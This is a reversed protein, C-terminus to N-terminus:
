TARLQDIGVIHRNVHGRERHFVDMYMARQSRYGMAHHWADSSALTPLYEIIVGPVEKVIQHHYHGCYFRRHKCASWDAARDVAMVGMLMEPKAKDGHHTGLLVSGFRFWHYMAPSQDVTVRPEDEYALGLALALMASILEDHNGREMILTVRKHKTLALDIARRCIRVIVRAMKITRGDVDVRTGKTTTNGQGDAHATDGIFVLLAEDSPPALAVLHEFAAVLNREAIELDFNEGADEHWALLGAHPDGVPYVALLSEDTYAPPVVPAIRPLVDAVTRIADLWAAREDNQASTKVWQGRVEGGVVFSSVGKLVHGDPVVPKYASEEDPTYGERDFAEVSPWQTAACVQVTPKSEHAALDTASLTVARGEAALTKRVVRLHREDVGLARAVDAWSACGAHEGALLREKVTM